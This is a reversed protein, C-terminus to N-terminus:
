FYSSKQFGSQILGGKEGRYKQALLDKWSCSTLSFTNTRKVTTQESHNLLGNACWSGDRSCVM